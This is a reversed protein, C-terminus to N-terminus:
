DNVSGGEEHVSFKKLDIFYYPLGAYHGDRIHAREFNIGVFFMEWNSKAPYYFKLVKIESLDVEYLRVIEKAKTWVEKPTRARRWRSKVM